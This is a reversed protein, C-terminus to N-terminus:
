DAPPKDTQNLKSFDVPEARLDELPKKEDLGFRRRREERDYIADRKNMQWVWVWAAGLTIVFVAAAFTGVTFRPQEPRPVVVPQRGILMPSLQTAREGYRRMFETEYAWLKFYFAPIRVERDVLDEAKM